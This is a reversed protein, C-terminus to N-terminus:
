EYHNQNKMYMKTNRVVIIDNMIQLLLVLVNTQQKMFLLSIFANLVFTFEDKRSRFKIFM